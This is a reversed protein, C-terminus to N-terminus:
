ELTHGDRSSHLRAVASRSGVTGSRGGTTTWGAELEILVVSMTSWRGPTSAPRRAGTRTCEQVAVPMPWGNKEALARIRELPWTLVNSWGIYRAEGAAVIEAAEVWASGPGPWWAYCDATDVFTGGIELYRELM